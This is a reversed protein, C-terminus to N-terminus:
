CGTGRLVCVLLTRFLIAIDGFFSRERVYSVDVRCRTEFDKPKPHMVQWSGTLGPPVELRERQWAEYTDPSFSNPRPGVLSMEGRLVNWLQPLEDLYLARLIRGPRTVRPDDELKFGAGKDESLALLEAKMADANPVMTRFKLVHFAVGHLGFRKQRYFIPAKPDNIKIMLAIFLGVPLLVPLALLVFLIDRVRFALNSKGRAAGGVAPKLTNKEVFDGTGVGVDDRTAYPGNIDVNAM